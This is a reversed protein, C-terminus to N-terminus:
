DFPLASPIFLLNPLAIALFQEAMSRSPFVFTEPQVGGDSDFTGLVWGSGIPIVSLPRNRPWEKIIGQALQQLLTM